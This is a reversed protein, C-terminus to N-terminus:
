IGLIFDWGEKLTDIKKRIKVVLQSRKLKKSVILRMVSNGGLFLDVKVKERKL